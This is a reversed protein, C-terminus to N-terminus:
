ICFGHNLIVDFKDLTSLFDMSANVRKGTHHMHAYIAIEIGNFNLSLDVLREGLPLHMGESIDIHVTALKTLDKSCQGSTYDVYDLETSYVNFSLSSQNEKLPCYVDTFVFGDNLEDGKQVIPKFLSTCHKKGKDDTVYIQCKKHVPNKSDFRKCVEVGYTADASTVVKQNHYICAGRVVALDHHLPVLVKLSSNNTAKYQKRVDDAIFQCGGFGGVLYFIEFQDEHEQVITDRACSICEHLKELNPWFFSSMKRSSLYLQHTRPKFAVDHGKELDNHKFENLSSRYIQFLSFPLQVSYIGKEPNEAFVKKTREFELYVLGLMEAINEAIDASGSLFYQSFDPDGFVENELFTRFAENILTGGYVVGRPINVRKMRGAPLVQHATVDITGGGVDITLFFRTTTVPPAADDCTRVDKDTLQRCWAAAADPEYM